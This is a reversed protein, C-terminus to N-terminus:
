ITRFSKFLISLIIYELYTGKTSPHNRLVLPNEAEVLNVMLDIFISIWDSQQFDRVQLHSFSKIKLENIDNGHLVAYDLIETTNMDSVHSFQMKVSILPLHLFNLKNRNSQLCNMQKQTEIQLLHCDEPSLKKLGQLARGVRNPKSAIKKFRYYRDHNYFDLKCGGSLNLFMELVNDFTAQVPWNKISVVQIINVGNRVGVAVLASITDKPM